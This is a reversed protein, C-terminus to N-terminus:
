KKNNIKFYRYNFMFLIINIIISIFLIINMFNTLFASLGLTTGSVTFTILQSLWMAFNIGCAPCAIVSQTVFTIGALGTASNCLMKKNLSTVALNISATLVFILLLIFTFINIAIINTFEFGELYYKSMLWIIAFEDSNEPKGFFGIRLPFHGTILYQLLILLFFYISFFIISFYLTKLYFRKNFFSNKIM